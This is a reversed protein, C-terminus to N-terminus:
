VKIYYVQLSHNKRLTVLYQEVERTPESAGVIVMKGIKDRCFLYAYQCLQGLAETVCDFPNLATKVEYLDYFDSGKVVADIRKAGVRIETGVNDKGNESCLRDYLKRMLENHLNKTTIADGHGTRTGSSQPINLGPVFKIDSPQPKNGLIRNLKKLWQGLENHDIFTYDEAKFMEPPNADADRLSSRKASITYDTFYDFMLNVCAEYNENKAIFVWTTTSADNSANEFIIAYRNDSMSITFIFADEEKGHNIEYVRILKRDNQLSALNYLYENKSKVFRKKVSDTPEGFCQGFTRKRANQVEEWWEGKVELNRRLTRVYKNLQYLDSRAPELIKTDDFKVMIRMQEFRQEFFNHVLNLIEHSDADNVRCPSIANDVEGKITHFILFYGNYFHINGAGLTMSHVTRVPKRPLDKIKTQTENRSDAKKREPLFSERLNNVYKCVDFDVFAFTGAETDIEVKVLSAKIANKRAKSVRSYVQGLIKEFDRIERDRYVYRNKKYIISILGYNFRLASFQIRHEIQRKAIKKEKREKDKEEKAKKREVEKLHREFTENDIKARFDELKQFTTKDVFDFTGKYCDLIIQATVDKIRPDNKYRNLEPSFGLHRFIFTNNATKFTICGDEFRLQSLTIQITKTIHGEAIKNQNSEQVEQIGKGAEINASSVEIKDEKQINSTMSLWEIRKARREAEKEEYTKKKFRPSQSASDSDVKDIAKVGIEQENTIRLSPKHERSTVPFITSAIERVRKDGNFEKLLAAYQEDTVKTNPNMEKTPELGPKSKLYEVITETGVNLQKLVKNLRIGM